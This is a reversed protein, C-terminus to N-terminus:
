VRTPVTVAGERRHRCPLLRHRSGALALGHRSLEMREDHHTAIDSWGLARTSERLDAM